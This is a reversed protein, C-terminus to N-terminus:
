EHIRRVFRSVAEMFRESQDRYPLHGAEAIVELSANPSEDALRFNDATPMLRDADDTAM